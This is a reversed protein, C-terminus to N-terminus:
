ITNLFFKLNDESIILNTEPFLLRIPIEPVEILISNRHQETYFTTSYLSVGLSVKNSIISKTFSDYILVSDVFDPKYSMNNPHKKYIIKAGIKKAEEKLLSMVRKEIKSLEYTHATVQSYFIIFDINETHHFKNAKAYEEYFTLTPIEARSSYYNQQLKNFTKLHHSSIFPSYTGIGHLHTDVFRENEKFISNYAVSMPEFDDMNLFSTFDIKVMDMGFKVAADYELAFVQYLNRKFILTILKKVSYPMGYFSFDMYKDESAKLEKIYTLQRKISLPFPFILVLHKTNKTKSKFLNYEVEVYSKIINKQGSQFKSKYFKAYSLFLWHLLVKIIIKFSARVEIKEHKLISPIDSTLIKEKNDVSKIYFNSKLVLFNVLAKEYSSSIEGLNTFTADIAESSRYYFNIKKM